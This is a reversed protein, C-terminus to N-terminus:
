PVAPATPAPEDPVAPSATPLPAEAVRKLKELGSQFMSGMMRDALLAFYPGVVAMDMDGSMSWGVETGGAVAAATMVARHPKAAGAFHVDYEVRGPAVVKLELRGGGSKDTWSQSAGPGVTVPGLTIAVTTDEEAWPAWEPWRTLDELLPQLREPPVQVTVTRSVQYSDPLVLGGLVLLGVLVALGIITKKLM